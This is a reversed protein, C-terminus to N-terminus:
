ADAKSKFFLAKYSQFDLALYLIIATALMIRSVPSSNFLYIAYSIIFIIISFALYYGRKIFCKGNKKLISLTFLM